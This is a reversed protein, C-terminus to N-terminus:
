KEVYVKTFVCENRFINVLGLEKLVHVYSDVSEKNFEPLTNRAETMIFETHGFTNYLEKAIKYLNADKPRKKSVYNGITETNKEHLVFDNMHKSRSKRTNEIKKKMKNIM